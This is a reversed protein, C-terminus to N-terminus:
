RRFVVTRGWESAPLKVCIRDQIGDYHWGSAAEEHLPALDLHRELMFGDAVVSSPCPGSLILTVDHAMSSLKVTTTGAQRNELCQLSCAIGSVDDYWNYASSRRPYIRLCLHHYRDVVNGVYDGLRYRDGLNIPLIAGAKVFVPIIEKPAPYDVSKAGSHLEDTWLDIWEGEPLYVEQSSTGETAVPAVLFADGFLYQYPFDSCREDRPFELPLARMLPVGTESSKRAENYIYPLLNMRLNAYKRYIRIVDPDGTRTQINWPTRDRCPEGHESHESHYQMIPCFAAMAAGRLYLEASPIEGSFGALDWGWFPIGSIGASLGALISYRFADWTSNEDGAWHCPYAQAGTFGARSFTIADGKRKDRAFRHYAAEYLVPYLNQLEDGGRGDAFSLDEGWLHEGGDTKFGDIALEDLLYARKGLWWNVAERSTFDLVLSGHFWFSRVRYPEGDSEEVCYHQAIMYAEDLDHQAHRRDLKKMVPIQWLLVHIGLRHLEEILGKPDPWRGNSPFTFDGYSFVEGGGKPGYQAENWIYSTAEDSWAEIVLVTAPIQYEVTKRVQELVAAQSNWDNGSMWPGFAWKPPLAPKGTLDTFGAIIEKPQGTIVYYELAGDAGLEASFSWRDSRSAALDYVVHRNTALYLGYGQSSLFFPMPLYTRKGQNKYQDFVRVDLHNGRQDLANFREGFGHFAENPPSVFIDRLQVAQGPQGVLWSVREVEELLPTGGPHRVELQYPRVGVAVEMAKTAIVIREATEEMVQFAVSQYDGQHKEQSLDHGCPVFRLRLIEPAAFSIQVEPRLSGDESVCRLVLREPGTQYSVVDGIPCWGLVVFCFPETSLQQRGRRAHLQYTVREGHRFPPLEVRWFSRGEGDERWCGEASGEEGSETLHWTAWVAEATGAPWTAVGLTVSQGALPHRPFREVPEEEYPHETGCPRHVLGELRLSSEM